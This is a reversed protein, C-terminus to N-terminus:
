MTQLLTSVKSNYCMAYYDEVYPDTISSELQLKQIRILWEREKQSMFGAFEDVPRRSVTEHPQNPMRNMHVNNNNVYNVRHYPFRQQMQMNYMQQQNLFPHPPLQHPPRYPAQQILLFNQQIQPHHVLNVRGPPLLPRTLPFPLGMQPHMPMPMMHIPHPLRNQEAARLHRELQQQQTEAATMVPAPHGVPRDRPMPSKRESLQQQKAPSSESRFSAELEELSMPQPIVKPGATSSTKGPSEMGILTNMLRNNNNSLHDYAQQKPSNKWPDSPPAPPVPSGSSLSCPISATDFLSQDPPAWVSSSLRNPNISFSSFPDSSASHDHILSSMLPQAPSKTFKMIAPDDPLDSDDQLEISSFSKEIDSLRRIGSVNTISSMSTMLNSSHMPRTASTTTTVSALSRDLSLQNPSPCLEDADGGWEWEDEEGGFTEDNLADFAEDLAPDHKDTMSIPRSLVACQVLLSSVPSTLAHKPLFCTICPDCSAWTVTRM